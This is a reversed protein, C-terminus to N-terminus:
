KGIVLIRKNHHGSQESWLVGNNTLRDLLNNVSERYRGGYKKANGKLTALSLCEYGNLLNEQFCGKALSLAKKHQEEDVIIINPNNM